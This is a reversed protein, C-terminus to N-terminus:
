ESSAVMSMSSAAASAGFRQAYSSPTLFHHYNSSATDYLSALFGPLSSAHRQTLQVDFSTTITQDVITDKAPVPAASAVTVRPESALVPAAVLTLAGLSISLSAVGLKSFLSHRHM